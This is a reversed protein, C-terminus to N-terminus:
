TDKQANLDIPEGDKKLVIGEPRSLKGDPGFAYVISALEGDSHEPAAERPEEGHFSEVHLTQTPFAFAVGLEDALRMVELLFNHQLQLQKSWDNVEFFLYVLVDLSHAGYGNFHVEYNQQNIYDSAKIISKIGEVFAEMQRPSTDYTLNLTTNLRRRRRKGLNDIETNALISNPVSTVSDYLTRLRTSRFGVEEVVGEASSTKILDGVQFPQDTFITLSGFFNALTDKAALAIALGGLGLGALLSTVNIGNNQMIFIIGIVVVFIKMTKRILPVLQDDLKSDTKTTLEELYRALVNTLNYFLWVFGALFAIELITSLYYNTNVSLMLNSFTAWFFGIMFLFSIPKETEEILMNDWRTVTRDVLRRAYNDFLYEFLKRLVLGILLWIFIAAYQWTRLGLWENHMYAPLEDVVEDILFSFTNDYLEPIMGVTTESFHWRGGDNVLSVNPLAAFLTYQQRGSLSDTYNPNGPVAELDVLLGRADLVQKLERAREIREEETLDLGSHLPLAALDMNKSAEQQYYLFTHLAKRPTNLLRDTSDPVSQGQLPGAGPLGTGLILITLMLPIRALTKM